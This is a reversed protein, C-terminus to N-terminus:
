QGSVSVNRVGAGRARDVADVVSAYAVGDDARVILSEAVGRTRLLTALTVRAAPLSSGDPALLTWGDRAVHLTWPPSPPRDENVCSAAGAPSADIRAM